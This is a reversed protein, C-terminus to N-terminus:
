VGLELVRRAKRGLRLLSEEDSVKDLQDVPFWSVDHSEDSVRPQGGLPAVLLFRIDYHLHAPETANAPIQHIDVDIPLPRGGLLRMTLGSMGSEEQAERMAARFVEPEGDVHGGVQLWRNLKKHHTLLFSRHDASVVWASATIHGPVCSRLFCDPRSEAFEVIARARDRDEPYLEVYQGLQDLLHQRHM